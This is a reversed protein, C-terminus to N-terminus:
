FILCIQSVLIWLINFALCAALRKLDFEKYRFFRILIIISAIISTIKGFVMWENGMVTWDSSNRFYENVFFICIRLMTNFVGILLCTNYLGQKNFLIISISLYPTFFLLCDIIFPM